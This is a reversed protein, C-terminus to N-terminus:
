DSKKVKEIHLYKWFLLFCLSAIFMRAFIVFMPDFTQFTFKLAIFSSAWILMALILAIPALFTTKNYM